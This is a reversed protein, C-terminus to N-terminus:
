LYKYWHTSSNEGESQIFCGISLPVAFPTFEIFVSIAITNGNSNSFSVACKAPLKPLAKRDPMTVADRDEDHELIPYKDKILAM